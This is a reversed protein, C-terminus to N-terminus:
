TQDQETTTAASASQLADLDAQQYYFNHILLQNDTVAPSADVFRPRFIRSRVERQVYLQMDAFEPPNAEIIKLNTARGRASVDYSVTVNGQLLPEDPDNSSKEGGTNVYQPIPRVRLPVLEELQISRYALQDDGESLNAWAEQYVKRARQENGQFMYYDGLALSTGAILEWNSEPYLSAIRLARKFHIEGTSMATQGYAVTGSLDVYFYSKGLRTLPEVLQTSNKGVELEIIRIARRLTTREDNIFGTRHQWAARQMLSPVMELTNAAYARENVSYIMDQIHRADEASGLRLSTEALSELLEIQNLNHPGENVHSVHVARRFTSGALDPRGGELQAAGLGKLPNILQENLRDENDEIIEISSQFNQQAADFQRTRHQVIALNTLAKAFDTSQPGKVTIALEVVRKAVSDAEDYVGDAMLQLYREYQFILEEEPTADAPLAVTVAEPPGFDQTTPAEIDEAAGAELDDAELDDAELDDAAVPVVQDMEPAEHAPESELDADPEPQLQLDPGASVPPVIDEAFVEAAIPDIEPATELDQANLGTAALLFAIPTLNKM